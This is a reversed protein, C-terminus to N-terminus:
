KQIQKDKKTGVPEVDIFDEDDMMMFAELKDALAHNRAVRARNEAPSRYETSANLNINTQNFNFTDPLGASEKRVKVMDRAAQILLAPSLNKLFDKEDKIRRKWETLIPNLFETAVKFNEERVKVEALLSNSSINKLKTMAKKVAEKEIEERAKSIRDSWGEIKCRGKFTNLPIKEVLAFEEMTMPKDSLQTAFYRKEVGPWDYKTKYQKNKKVKKTAM